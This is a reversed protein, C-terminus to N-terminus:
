FIVKYNKKAGNDLMVEILLPSNTKIISKCTFTDSNINNFTGLMRGLLDHIRVSKITQNTSVINISETTFVTVSYNDFNENGLTENTFKLVFRNEHVGTIGTFTYPSARLDHTVGLVLDELYINQSADEFLGDVANIALTYIGNQPITVGLQIEDNTDFPLAKGQIILGKNAVISYVEFTTKVGVHRTDFVTDISNTAGSSYGVLADVSTSNPHILKLWIRHRELSNTTRYFQDNRHLNSRMTNNFLANESTSNADNMLVFFGQGAGIKGDFGFQTGGLANYTIYDNTNYNLQYDQYFPDAIAAPDIGHTWIKVFQELNSSNALLFDDASIASPYPNGLLNWNDDDETVPTATPGVYPAGTYTSRTIPVSIDGNNPVGTFTSTGSSGRVIYGLGTTMAGSAASWNGFNSTYGTVTTPNWAYRYTSSPTINNVSFGAVPTSWYVYDLSSDTIANRLVNITGSNAVNDIQILSGSNQITFVGTADVTVTSSITLTNNSQINLEGGNKIILTKGFADYNTGIITSSNVVNPIIVCSNIDPVVQPMWNNPNNWDNDMTGKWITSKNLVTIDQSVNCGNTLTATATFTYSGTELQSLQPKVYVTTAPSGLTYPVSTAADTYVDPLPTGSWELATSLPKTGFLEIDDVAAGNAWTDTYYRVRVRLNAQNIYSNLNYSYDTFRTGYGIDDVLNGSIPLWNSGGDTSIDITMLENPLFAGSQYYRDFYLRFKLTLSLFGTSNVTSSVLGNDVTYYCSPGCTGVDSNVFAFSNAGFNSSIAPFWTTGTPVFPGTEIQWATTADVAANNVYHVNAFTGMGSEFKEDILYVVEDGGVATLAVVSEEGCVETNSTAFSITPVPKVFATIKTRVLTECIGDYSTVWYDTTNSISSTNWTGTATDALLAGGTEASYWRFGTPSGSSTAQLSVSGSGCVSGDTVTAIKNACNDIVELLYDETEGFYALNTSCANWGFGADMGFGNRGSVRIRVRYDGALISTPIIFGLTTSAQSVGGADYVTEGADSFDGDSNWDVWAKIYGSFPSEVYINVGEGKAQRPKTTLGTYNEYGFPAAATYTSTNVIDQLTGIFAVENIHHNVNTQYSANITPVCYVPALSTANGTLPSTGLYLPGGTCFNNLSYIYFYYTTLPALGSATFITNSDNDVVTYGAAISSGITYTTGNVPATPPTASTSVVVLYSNAAPTAATFSGSITGSAPTLSLATPQATPATCPTFCVGSYSVNIEFGTDVFSNDSAFQVTLTQGPNGVYNITGTGTFTALVTGGIGTGDYIRIFDWGNEVAYSGTLTVTAGTGANLATWDNRNNNYNALNAHDRLLTNDGCAVSNTGLGTVLVLNTITLTANTSFSSTGCSNTATARYLYGNMALTAGTINLTATTANSYVGGNIVTSWSGGGNTSVEWTYSSPSNTAVVSFSTNAGNAISVSVPNTTITPTTIVTVARTISCGTPLTYIVNVAGASVGTLVGSANITANANSTSWTGGPTTNTFASTTAGSCVTASGGGIAAPLPNVTFSAASTASGGPTTVQVAGTTGTGVTVTVTTATNGTITAATGGITVATAGSLNTGNIVLSSGVCGSAAGLSTITPPTPPTWTFTRGNSPQNNNRSRCTSNNAVGATTNGDWTTNATTLLRNNFDANSTGRLGVQVNVNNNNLAFNAYVIDIRNSTEFLKIQFDLNGAQAFRRAERWQVTFVRNPSTGTTTYLINRTNNDRLDVGFGSIAGAYGTNDSIPTYLNNASTTTGFTIYGNSNVSCTTYNTGNFNFTFGIPITNASVADDWGSAHVTTGTVSTYTGASESFTYNAVQGFGDFLGAFTFLLVFLSIKNLLFYHLFSSQFTSKSTFYKNKM